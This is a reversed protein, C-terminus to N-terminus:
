KLSPVLLVVAAASAHLAVSLFGSLTTIIRTVSHSVPQVFLCTSPGNAMVWCAFCFCFLEATHIIGLQFFDLNSGEVIAM